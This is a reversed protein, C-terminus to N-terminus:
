VWPHSERLVSWCPVTENDTHCSTDLGIQVSLGPRLDIKWPLLFDFYYNNEILMEIPYSDSKAPLVDAQIRRVLSTLMM